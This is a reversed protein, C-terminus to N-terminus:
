QVPLRLHVQETAQAPCNLIKAVFHLQEGRDCPPLPASVDRSQSKKRNAGKSAVPAGTAPRVRAPRGRPGKKRTVKERPLWLAAPGDRERRPTRHPRTAKGALTSNTELRDHPVACVPIDAGGGVVPPFDPTWVVGSTTCSCPFDSPISSNAMPDTTRFLSYSSNTSEHRTRVPGSPFHESGFSVKLM